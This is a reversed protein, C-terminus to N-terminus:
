TGTRWKLRKTSLGLYKNTEVEWTSQSFHLMLDRWASVLLIAGACSESVTRHLLM